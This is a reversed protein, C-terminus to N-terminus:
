HVNARISYASFLIMEKIIQHKKDKVAKAILQIPNSRVQSKENM